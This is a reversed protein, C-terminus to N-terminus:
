KEIAIPTDNLSSEHTGYSEGGYHVIKTSIQIMQLLSIYIDM